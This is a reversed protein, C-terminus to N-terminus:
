HMRCAIVEGYGNLNSLNDTRPEKALLDDADPLNLDAFINGSGRTTTSDKDTRTM